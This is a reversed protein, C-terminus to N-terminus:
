EFVLSTTQSVTGAAPVLEPFFHSAEHPEAQPEEVSWVKEWAVM